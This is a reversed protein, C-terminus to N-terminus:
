PSRRGSGRDASIGRNRRRSSARRTCRRWRWPQEASGPSRVGRRQTGGRRIADRHLDRRSGVCGHRWRIRRGRVRGDGARGRGRAVGRDRCMRGRRWGSEYRGEGVCCPREVPLADTSRMSAGRCRPSRSPTDTLATAVSSCEPSGRVFRRHISEDGSSRWPGRGARARRATQM